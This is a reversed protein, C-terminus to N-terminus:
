LSSKPQNKPIEPQFPVFFSMGRCYRLFEGEKADNRAKM